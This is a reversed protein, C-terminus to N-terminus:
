SHLFLDKDIPSEAVAVADEAIAGEVIPGLAGEVITSAGEVVTVSVGRVGSAIIKSANLRGLWFMSISGRGSQKLTVVDFLLLLSSALRFALFLDTVLSRLATKFGLM